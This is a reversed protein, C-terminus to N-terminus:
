EEVKSVEKESEEKLLAELAAIAGLLQQISQNAGDIVKQKEKEYEAIRSAIKEKTQEDM